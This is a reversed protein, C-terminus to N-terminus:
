EDTQLIKKVLLFRGEASPMEAMIDKTFEDPQNTVEDKRFINFRAGVQPEVAGDAAIDSVVSVYAMISSLEGPLDEVEKETLRIRALRALHEIDERKMHGLM